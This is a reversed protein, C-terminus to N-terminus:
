ELEPSIGHIVVVGAVTKMWLDRRPGKGDAVRRELVQVLDIVLRGGGQGAFIVRRDTLGVVGPEDPSHGAQLVALAGLREGFTAPSTSVVRDGDLIENLLDRATVERREKVPARIM